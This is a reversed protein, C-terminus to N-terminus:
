PLRMDEFRPQASLIFVNRMALSHTFSSECSCSATRCADEAIVMLAVHLAEMNPSWRSCDFERWSFSKLRIWPEPVSTVGNVSFTVAIIVELVFKPQFSPTCTKPNGAAYTPAAQLSARREICSWGAACEARQHCLSQAGRICCAKHARRPCTTLLAGRVGGDAGTNSSNRDNRQQSGM